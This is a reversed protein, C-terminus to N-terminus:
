HVTHPPHLGWQSPAQEYICPGWAKGRSCMSFAIFSIMRASVQNLDCSAQHLPCSASKLYFDPKGHQIYKEGGWNGKEYFSLQFSIIGSTGTCRQYCILRQSGCHQMDGPQHLCYYTQPLCTLSGQFPTGYTSPPLEPTSGVEAQGQGPRGHSRHWYFTCSSPQM